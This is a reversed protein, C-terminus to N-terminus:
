QRRYSPAACVLVRHYGVLARRGRSRPADDRSGPRCVVPPPMRPEVACLVCSLHVTTLTYDHPSATPWLRGLLLTSCGGSRYCCHRPRARTATFSPHLQLSTGPSSWSRSCWAHELEAWHGDATAQRKPPYVTRARSAHEAGRAPTAASVQLALGTTVSIRTQRSRGMRPPM